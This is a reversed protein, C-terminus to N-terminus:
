RRRDCRYPLPSLIAVDAVAILRDVDCTMLHTRVSRADRVRREASAHMWIIAIDRLFDLWVVITPKVAIERRLRGLM